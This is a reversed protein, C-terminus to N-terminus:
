GLGNESALGPFVGVFASRLVTRASAQLPIFAAGWVVVATGSISVMLMGGNKGWWRTFDIDIGVM